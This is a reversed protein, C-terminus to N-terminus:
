PFNHWNTQNLLYKDYNEYYLIRKEFLNEYEKAMLPINKNSGILIIKKISQENKLLRKIFEELEM